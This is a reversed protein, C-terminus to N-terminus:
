KIPQNKLVSEEHKLFDSAVKNILVVRGGPEVLFLSDSIATIINRAVAEATLSFLNYKWIGYSIIVCGLAIGPTLLVPGIIGFAPLVIESTLGVILPISFGMLFLKTQQKERFSSERRFYKFCLFLDLALIAIVWLDCLQNIIPKQPQLYTWGWQGQRPIGSFEESLLHLISFSVAPLYFLIFLSRNKLLSIQHTYVLVFHLSVAIPLPWIFAIKLWFLATEFNHATRLAYKAM